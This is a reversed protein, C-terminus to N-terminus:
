TVFILFCRILHGDVFRWYHLLLDGGKYGESTKHGASPEPFPASNKAM